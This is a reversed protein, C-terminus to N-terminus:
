KVIGPVYRGKLNGWNIERPQPIPDDLLPGGSVGTAQIFIVGDMGFSCHVTCEYFITANAAPILAQNFVVTHTPSGSDLPGFWLGAGGGCMVNGNEATDHGGSVWQWVVTDGYAINLTDPQFRFPGDPEPGKAQVTWTKAEAVGAVLLLSLGLLLSASARTTGKKM